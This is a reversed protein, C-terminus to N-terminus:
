LGFLSFLKRVSSGAKDLDRQRRTHMRAQLLERRQQLAEQAKDERGPRKRARQDARFKAFAKFAELDHELDRGVLEIMIAHDLLGATAPQPGSAPAGFCALANIVRQRDETGPQWDADTAMEIMARLRAFREKVFEALQAREGAELVERAAAIISEAPTSRALAQTQQALGELHRLDADRLDFSIRLSM